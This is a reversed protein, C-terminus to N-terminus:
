AVKLITLTQANAHTDSGDAPTITLAVANGVPNIVALVANIAVTTVLFDGVIEHGGSTPNMNAATTEDVATGNLELQLQGPETTHVRFTVKYTGVDPLTFSSGDVRVIGVAPGNRPFPVRGTGASTKVAVTAAYDTSTSNGTGATLGYFGAFKAIGGAAGTAGTAGTAGVGTAGAPGTAGTVGTAGGPSGAAGTAGTAGGGATALALSNVDAIVGGTRAYGRADVITGIPIRVGPAVNTARGAVSNSVWLTDGALPTLGTELLVLPPTGGLCVLVDAAGAAAAGSMVVGITGAPSSAISKELVRTSILKVVEGVVLSTSGNPYAADVIDIAM